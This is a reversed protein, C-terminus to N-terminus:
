AFQKRQLFVQPQFGNHRFYAYLRCLATATDGELCVLENAGKGEGNIVCFLAPKVVVIEVQQWTHGGLAKYACGKWCAFDLLAQFNITQIIHGSLFLVIRYKKRSITVRNIVTLSLFMM